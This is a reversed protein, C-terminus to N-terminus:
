MQRMSMDNKKKKWNRGADGSYKVLSALLNAPGHPGVHLAVLDHELADGRATLQSLAICFPSNSSIPILFQSILL